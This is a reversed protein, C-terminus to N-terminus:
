FKKQSNKSKIKIKIKLKGKGKPNFKKMWKYKNIDIDEMKEFNEKYNNKNEKNEYFDVKSGIEIDMDEIEVGNGDDSGFDDFVHKVGNIKEDNVEDNDNVNGNNDFGKNESDKKKDFNQADFEDAYKQM